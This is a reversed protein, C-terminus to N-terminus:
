FQWCHVIVQPPLCRRTAKRFTSPQRQKPLHELVISKMKEEVRATQEDSITRIDDSAYAIPAIVNAKGTFRGSTKGADLAASTGGVVYAVNFTLNKEPLQQRFVDICRV